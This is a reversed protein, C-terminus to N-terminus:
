HVVMGGSALKFIQGDQGPLATLIAPTNGVMTFGSPTQNPPILCSGDPRRFDPVEFHWSQTPPKGLFYQSVTMTFSQDAKAGWTVMAGGYGFYDSQFPIDWTLRTCPTRASLTEDGDLPNAGMAVSVPSFVDRYFMLLTRVCAVLPPCENVAFMNIDKAGLGASPVGWFQNIPGGASLHLRRRQQGIIATSSIQTVTQLAVNSNGIFITGSKLGVVEPSNFDFTPITSGAPLDVGHRVIIRNAPREPTDAYVMGIMDVPGDPVGLQFTKSSAPGGASSNTSVVDYAEGDAVGTITGNLTKTDPPRPTFCGFQETKSLALLEDRSFAWVRVANPNPAYAITLVDTAPFRISDSGSAFQWAGGHNQYAFWSSWCFKIATPTTTGPDPGATKSGDSGSCAVTALVLPIAKKLM